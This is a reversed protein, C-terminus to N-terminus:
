ENENGSEGVLRGSTLWQQLASVVERVEKRNLHHKDGLWLFSSGPNEFSDRYDGIASSEGIIRTEEHPNLYEPHRIMAFGRDSVTTKM